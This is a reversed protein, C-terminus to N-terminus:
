HNMVPTADSGARRATALVSAPGYGLAASARAAAARLLEALLPIREPTFRISPLSIGLAAVATARGDFIPAGLGSVGERWEGRNLAHGQARAQLLDDLLGPYSRHSYRTYPHLVPIAAALWGEAQERSPPLAAALLVKGTAVCQAPARGGVRSYAAVPQPSDIKDLYIVEAGDRVALHITEETQQALGALEQRAVEKVDLGAAVRSGMEFLRLTAGYRADPLQRVYGLGVLSQLTRHANSAALDLARAVDSVGCPRGQDVLYELVALGKALTKDM